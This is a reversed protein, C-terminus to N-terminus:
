FWRLDFDYDGYGARRDVVRIVATFGNLPNPQQVVEISGRGRSVDLALSVPRRPLGAGRLDYHVDRLFQGSRTRYEVRRGQIRIEAVDDVDGRWSLRGADRGRDDRGRDYRDGDDRGRNDGGRNDRDRDDRDRDDNGRGRDNNIDSDRGRDRGDVPVFAPQWSAVVRYKDAGARGDYVRVLATYDNRASPQQVVEVDGRGSALQVTVGGADRPLDDRTEVRSPFSADVGSARTEVSRGRIVLMVERDVTGTWTFLTRDRQPLASAPGAVATLLGVTAPLAFLTQRLLSM